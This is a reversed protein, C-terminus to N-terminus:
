KTVEASRGPSQPHAPGASQFRIAVFDHTEELRFGAKEIERAVEPMHAAGWPVILHESKPLRAHINELLRRNRRGLIDDFLQNEFGPAPASQTLKLFTAPDLGRSHILMALNLLNITNTNFDSVDVDARVVQRQPLKFEKQQESVGLAQAMRRYTIRNTLLNKDDSVGEMLILANTPFSASLKRYFDAEGVHAMPILQIVRGDNRVYKRAHAILGGSQLTLFGDTFHNVAAAACLGLYVAVLPPLVVLNVLLFVLLRRWRFHGAPLATEPVLPWRFGGGGQARRLIVFGLVVQFLSVVWTFQQIRGYFFILVPLLLLVATPSFLTIPLFMRRPVMPTFAMSIYIVIASLLAPLSMLSRIPSLAHLNLFLILSDDLLSFVGEALFLGLGLSLLVAFAHRMPAPTSGSETPLPPPSAGPLPPPPGAVLPHDAPGAQRSNGDSLDQPGSLV